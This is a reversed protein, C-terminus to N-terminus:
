LAPAVDRHQRAMGRRRRRHWRWRGGAGNPAVAPRAGRRIGGAVPRARRVDAARATTRRAPGAAKTAPRRGAPQAHMWLHIPILAAVLYGAWRHPSFEHLDLQDVVVGTFLVLVAAVLLGIDVITDSGGAGM